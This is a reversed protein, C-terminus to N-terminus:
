PGGRRRWGLRRRTVQDLGGPVSGDEIDGRVRTGGVGGNEGEAAEQAFAIVFRPNAGKRSMVSQGEIAKGGLREQDALSHFHEMSEVFRGERARRFLRITGERLAIALGRIRRRDHHRRKGSQRKAYRGARRQSAHGFADEDALFEIAVDQKSAEHAESILAHGEDLFGTFDGNPAVDDVHERRLERIRQSDFEPAIVDIRNPGEIGRTLARLVLGRRGEERRRPLEEEIAFADDIARVRDTGQGLILANLLALDIRQDIREQAAM